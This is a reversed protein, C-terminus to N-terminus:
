DDAEKALVEKVIKGDVPEGPELGLLALVTPHVDTMDLQEIERGSAVGTGWAYFIGHMGPVDPDYGHTAAIGGILPTFARPWFTSIGLIDAYAPFAEPGEIWYPPKAVLLIDGSRPGKGIRAFAPYEGKRYVAFMDGYGALAAAVRDVSEHRDLYFYASAGFAAIQGKIEHENAIRGINVLPGVDRMGHDTGIILAAEQGKPLALITEMMMGVVADSDEAAAIAEPSLTGHDHAARDPGKLYLAILTPRSKRPKSLLKMAHRARAMDGGWKEWRAQSDIKSALPGQMKSRRAMFGFVASRAGQREAAQWMPECGTLWDADRSYLYKGRKPDYFVNGVIGHHEPWCGTAFTTHNPFSVTPFAPVLHDSWVGEKRIRDFNPTRAAEMMAPAFGDFLVVVVTRDAASAAESWVISGLFLPLALLWGICPCRLGRTSKGQARM